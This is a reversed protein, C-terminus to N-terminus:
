DNSKQHQEAIHILTRAKEAQALPGSVAARITKHLSRVGEEYPRVYAKGMKEYFAELFADVSYGFIGDLARAEAENLEIIVRAKVEISVRFNTVEAM